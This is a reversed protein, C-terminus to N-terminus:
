PVTFPKASVCPRKTSGYVVISPRKPRAVPAGGYTSGSLQIEAFGANFKVVGM